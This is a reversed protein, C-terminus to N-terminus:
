DGGSDGSNSSSDSSGFDRFSDSSHSSSSYWDSLSWGGTSGAYGSDSGSRDYSSRRAAINEARTMLWFCILSVGGVAILFGMTGSIAFEKYRRHFLRESNTRRPLRNPGVPM